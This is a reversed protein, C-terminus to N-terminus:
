PFTRFRGLHDIDALSTFEHLGARRFDGPLSRREVWFDERVRLLLVVHCELPLLDAILLLAYVSLFLLVPHLLHSLEIFHDFVVRRVSEAIFNLLIDLLGLVLGVMFALAFLTLNLLHEVEDHLHLTLMAVRQLLWAVFDDSRAEQGVTNM